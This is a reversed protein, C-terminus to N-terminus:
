RRSVFSSVPSSSSRSLVIEISEESGTESVDDEDDGEDEWEFIEPFAEETQLGMDARPRVVERKLSHLEDETCMQRFNINALEDHHCKELTRAIMLARSVHFYCPCEGPNPQNRSKQEDKPLALYATIECATASIQAELKAVQEKATCLAIKTTQLDTTDKNDASPEVRTYTITKKVDVAPDANKKKEAELDNTLIINMGRVEIVEKQAEILKQYTSDHTLKQSELLQEYYANQAAATAAMVQANNCAIYANDRQQQAFTADSAADEAAQKYYECYDMPLADRAGDLRAQVTPTSTDKSDITHQLEKIKSLQRHLEGIEIQQYVKEVFDDVQQSYSKELKL